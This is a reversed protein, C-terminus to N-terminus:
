LRRDSLVDILRFLPNREYLRGTDKPHTKSKKIWGMHVISIPRTFFDLVGRLIWLLERYFLGM